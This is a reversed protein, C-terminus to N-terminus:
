VVTLQMYYVSFRASEPVFCLLKQGRQLQGGNLLEELMLYISASGVNGVRSLNTFWRSQPISFDIAALGDSLVARFYESSFHPLFWDYDDAKVRRRRAIALLTDRGFLRTILADLLRADQRIALYEDHVMRGANEANRWGRLTGDALKLAGSYMCVPLENALSIGDIWDIRLAPRGADPANSLLAAGAGDSLMWRLFDKEFALAPAHAAGDVADPQEQTFNRAALFSSVLESGCAAARAVEGSRVSLWAFKLAAMGASCVGAVSFAELAAEGLEGHVMHAHAPILQDATSTGCALLGLDAVRWQARRLADRVASATLQANTHTPSGTAPDIAYFRSRIGNNRLTIRRARSPREGVQGLVAEMDDNGIAGNPLCKGMGVIYAAAAHTQLGATREGSATM